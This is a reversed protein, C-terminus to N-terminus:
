LPPTSPHPAQACGNDAPGPASQMWDGCSWAALPATPACAREGVRMIEGAEDTSEGTEEKRRVRQAPGLLAPCSASSRARESERRELLSAADSSLSSPRATSLQSPGVGSPARAGGGRCPPTLGVGDDCALLDDVADDGPRMTPQCWPSDGGIMAGLTRTAAAAAGSSLVGSRTILERSAVMVLCIFQSAASSACCICLLKLLGRGSHVRDRTVCPVGTGGGRPRVSEGAGPPVGARPSCVGRGTCEGRRTSEDPWTTCACRSASSSSSHSRQVVGGLGVAARVAARPPVPVLAAPEVTAEAALGGVALERATEAALM